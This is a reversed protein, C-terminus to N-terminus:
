DVFIQVISMCASGNCQFRKAGGAIDFIPLCVNKRVKM